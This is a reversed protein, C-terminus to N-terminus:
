NRGNLVVELSLDVVINLEGVNNKEVVRYTNNNYLFYDGNEIYLSDKYLLMLMPKPRTHTRTGDAISETAYSKSIHFLGDIVAVKLPEDGIPEHYDNLKNRYITFSTGSRKIEQEVKHLEVSSWIM